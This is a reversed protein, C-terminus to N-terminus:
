VDNDCAMCLDPHEIGFYNHIFAKRCGDEKVYLMMQYLKQQENIRKKELYDQNNLRDPLNSIIKMNKNEVSGECVAWRDFMNLVTETRYDRRNKYTLQEKLFEIGESNVRDTESM